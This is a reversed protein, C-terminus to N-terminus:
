ISVHRVYRGNQRKSVHKLLSLNGIAVHFIRDTLGRTKKQKGDDGSPEVRAIKKDCELPIKPVLYVNNEKTANERQLAALGM